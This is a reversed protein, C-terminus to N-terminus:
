LWCVAINHITLISNRCAPTAAKLTPFVLLKAKSFTPIWAAPLSSRNLNVTLVLSGPV